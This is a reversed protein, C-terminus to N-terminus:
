LVFKYGVGKVTKFHHEGIKERLKRIHVDITRGGVVVENGWVRDLIVERKFVKNPKSTLLALLEFEKRPLVIEEGDNMIKYEERNIVINGVKVIDDQPASEEKLRRLLAKVKSVLVKPRIPKTIYDDAGADFGAVQSYDEGRATLFTIISNELGATNRITECAEIGDMEPMMVDLIILHPQKKKAMAVGEVGNKATFVQYGETTLNYGVIELIDPEDDVLLIKIDKKKM